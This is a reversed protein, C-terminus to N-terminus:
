CETMVVSRSKQEVSGTRNEAAVVVAAPPRARTPAAVVLVPEVPKLKPSVGANPAAVVVAVVM